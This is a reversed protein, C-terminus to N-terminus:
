KRGWVEIKIGPQFYAASSLQIFTLSTITITTSQFLNWVLWGWAADRSGPHIDHEYSGSGFMGRNFGARSFMSCNGHGSYCNGVFFSDSTAEHGSQLFSADRWYFYLYQYSTTTANNVYFNKIDSVTITNSQLAKNYYNLRMEYWKDGNLGSIQISSCTATIDVNALMCWNYLASVSGLYGTGTIESCIIKEAFVNNWMTNTRGLSYVGDCSTLTGAGGTVEIMPLRNGQWVARFTDMIQDADAIGTSFIYYSM